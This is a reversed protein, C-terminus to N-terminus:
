KLIGDLALNVELINVTPEGFVGFTKGQTYKFFISVTIGRPYDMNRPM